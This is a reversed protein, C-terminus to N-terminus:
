GDWVSTPMPLGAFAADALTVVPTIGAMGLLM